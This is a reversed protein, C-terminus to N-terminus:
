ATAACCSWHADRSAVTFLAVPIVVTDAFHADATILSMREHIAQAIMLRDFSDKHHLPLKAIEYIHNPAIPLLTLRNQTRQTEVIVALPAPLTLKGIQVKIQTEWISAISLYLANQTDECAALATHSLQGVLNRDSGLYLHPHGSASKNMRVWGSRTPYSM